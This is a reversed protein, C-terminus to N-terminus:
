HFPIQYYYGHCPCYERCIIVLLRLTVLHKTITQKTVTTTQSLIEKTSRSGIPGLSGYVETKLTSPKFAHLVM